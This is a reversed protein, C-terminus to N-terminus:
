AGGLFLEDLDAPEARPGEPPNVQALGGEFLEVTGYRSSVEVPPARFERDLLGRLNDQYALDRAFQRRFEESYGAFLPPEGTPPTTQQDITAIIQDLQQDTPEFGNLGALVRSQESLVLHSLVFSTLATPRAGPRGPSEVGILRLFPTNAAWLETQTELDANTIETDGVKAALTGGISPGGLEGADVCAGVVLGLTVLLVSLRAPLRVASLSHSRDCRM